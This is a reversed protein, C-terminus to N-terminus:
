DRLSEFWAKAALYSPVVADGHSLDDAVSVVEVDGGLASMRDRAVTANEFPVDQDGKSHFLRVPAVPRWNYVENRHLARFLRSKPDRDLLGQVVEPRLLESPTAPLAAMIQEFNHNGDFLTTVESAYQAVFMENPDKFLAYARGLGLVAYAM